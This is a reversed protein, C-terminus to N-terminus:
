AARDQTNLHTPQKLAEAQIWSRKWHAYADAPSPAGVVVISPSWCVWGQGCKALRPRPLRGFISAFLEDFHAGFSNIRM